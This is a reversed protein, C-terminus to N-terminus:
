FLQKWSCVIEECNTFSNSSINGINEGGTIRLFEEWRIKAMENGNWM